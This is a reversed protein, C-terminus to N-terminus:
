LWKDSTYVFVTPKYGASKSLENILKLLKKFSWMPNEVFIIM